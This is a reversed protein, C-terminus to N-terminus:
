WLFEDLSVTMILQVKSAQRNITYHITTMIETISQYSLTYLKVYAIVNRHIAYLRDGIDPKM